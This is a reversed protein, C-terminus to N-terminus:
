LLTEVAAYASNTSASSSHEAQSDHPLLTDPDLLLILRNGLKGVGRLQKLQPAVREPAEIQSESLSLVESVVDVILAMSREHSQAILLQTNANYPKSPLGCRKRINIVPIVKGRLNIVGEVCDPAQPLRNLAVMRVVQVVDAIALAYEQDDLKFTLLQVNANQKSTARTDHHAQASM